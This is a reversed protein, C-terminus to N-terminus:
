VNAGGMSIALEQAVIRDNFPIVQDGITQGTEHGKGAIVVVDGESAMEMAQRIAARRDGINLAEPCAVLIESRITDPNESRPNDDALISVDALDAAIKGMQPRKGRDRDGGCGFIVILRGDVHARIARLVTELADPTHAFDVYVGAGSKLKAVLEMRGPVNSLDPLVKVAETLSVGSALVVGLACLVNMAQFEGALPLDLSVEQGLIKVHLLQGQSHSKAEVLKLEQGAYGYSIEKLNRSKAAESFESYVDSDANLVVTGGDCVVRSVLGLKANLYDQANAHYDMHDRTFNTFAGISVGAGDVRRQDLGHSSAEMVVHNVEAQKLEKLVRHLVEPDPTTYKLDETGSATMLGLTGISAAPIGVKEWIERVFFAVSTKGNTGTVAAAVDPKLGVFKDILFALERRPDEVLHRVVPLNENDHELGALVAIAGQNIARDVYKWGDVKTGSLAAFLYGPKVQRSDATIGTVEADKAPDFEARNLLESLRM